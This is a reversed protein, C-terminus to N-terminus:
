EEPELRRAGAEELVASVGQGDKATVELPQQRAPALGDVERVVHGSRVEGAVECLRGREIRGAISALGRGLASILRGANSPAFGGSAAPRSSSASSMTSTSSRICPM